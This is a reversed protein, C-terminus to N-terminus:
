LGGDAALEECSFASQFDPAERASYVDDAWQCFVEGPVDVFPAERALRFQRELSAFFGLTSIANARVNEQLDTRQRPGFDSPDHGRITRM